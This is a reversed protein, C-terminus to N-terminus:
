NSSINRDQRNKDGQLHLHYMGGFHQHKCSGRLTVDWFVANKITIAYSSFCQYSMSRIYDMNERTVYNKKIVSWKVMIKLMFVALSVM